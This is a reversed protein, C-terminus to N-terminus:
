NFIIENDEKLQTKTLVKHRTTAMFELVRDEKRVEREHASFEHFPAVMSSLLAWCDNYQFETEDSEHVTKHIRMAQAKRSDAM